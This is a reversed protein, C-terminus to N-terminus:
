FANTIQNCTTLALYLHFFPRYPRQFRELPPLSSRAFTDARETNEAPCFPDLELEEKDSEM